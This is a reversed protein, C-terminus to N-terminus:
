LALTALRDLLPTETQWDHSLTRLLGITDDRQQALRQRQDILEQRGLYPGARHLAARAAEFASYWRGALTDLASPHADSGFPSANWARAPRSEAM